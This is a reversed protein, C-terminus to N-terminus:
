KKKPISLSQWAAPGVADRALLVIQGVHYAYHALQRQIAQMVTQPKGRILVTRELDGPALSEITRYLLAWGDRWWGMVEDRRTAPGLLFEDDRNRDPKEGDTTLFDTWRSRQNGAVHKVLIAISNAEPDGAAFFARDDVQAMAKEALDQYQRFSALVDALYETRM